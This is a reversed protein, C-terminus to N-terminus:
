LGLAKGAYALVEMCLFYRSGERTTAPLGPYSFVGNAHTGNPGFHYRSGDNAVAVYTLQGNTVAGFAFLGGDAHLLFGSAGNTGPVFWADVVDTSAPM